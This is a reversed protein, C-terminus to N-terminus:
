AVTQGAAEAALADALSNDEQAALVKKYTQDSIIGYRARSAQGYADSMDQDSRVQQALKLARAALQCLASSGPGVRKLLPLRQKHLMLLQEAAAQHQRRQQKQKKRGKGHSVADERPTNFMTCMSLLELGLPFYSAELFGRDEEEEHIQELYGQLGV